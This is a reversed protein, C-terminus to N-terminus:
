NADQNEQADLKTKERVSHNRGRDTAPGAEVMSPLFTPATLRTATLNGRKPDAPKEEGGLPLSKM